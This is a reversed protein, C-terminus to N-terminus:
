ISGLQSSSSIDWWEKSIAVVLFCWHGIQFLFCHHRLRDFQYTSLSHPDKCSWIQLIQLGDNFPIYAVYRQWIYKYLRISIIQGFNPLRQLRSEQRGGNCPLVRKKCRTWRAFRKFQGIIVVLEWLFRAANPIKQLKKGERFQGIIGASQYFPRQPLPICNLVAFM